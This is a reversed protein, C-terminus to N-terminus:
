RKREDVGACLAHDTVGALHIGRLDLQAGGPDSSRRRAQGGQYAGQNIAGLQVGATRDLPLGTVKPSHQIV